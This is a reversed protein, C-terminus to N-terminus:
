AASARQQRARGREKPWCSMSSPSEAFRTTALTSLAFIPYATPCVLSITCHTSITTPSPCLISQFLRLSPPSDTKEDLILWWSYPSTPYCQRHTELLHLRSRPACGPSRTGFYGTGEALSRGAPGLLDTIRLWVVDRTSVSMNMVGEQLVRSRLWTKMEESGLKENLRSHAAKQAEM